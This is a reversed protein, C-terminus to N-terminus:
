SGEFLGSRWQTCGDSGGASRNGAEKPPTGLGATTGAVTGTILQARTAAIKAQALTDGQSVTKGLRDGLHQALVRGVIDTPGGATFGVVLRLPKDPYAGQAAAPLSALMSLCLLLFLRIRKM